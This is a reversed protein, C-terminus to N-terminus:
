KAYRIRFGGHNSSLVAADSAYSYQFQQYADADDRQQGAQNKRRHQM